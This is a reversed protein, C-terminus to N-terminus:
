SRVLDLYGSLDGVVAADKRSELLFMSIEPPLGFDLALEEHLRRARAEFLEALSDASAFRPLEVANEFWGAVSHEVYDAIGADVDRVALPQRDPAFASLDLPSSRGLLEAAAHEGLVESCHLGDRYTGSVVYLGDLDTRGVVPFTDLTVPRNGMRWEEVRHFFTRQDLQEMACQAVFHGVGVYPIPEAEAFLVNTAGFYERAGGLPVVHLGCAGSRNPTRVVTEFSDGMVRLGVFAIGSGAYMPLVQESPLVTRLLRATVTGAAVVVHPATATAGDAIRVGRIADRDAVLSDAIADVVEVGAGMLKRELLRLVQRADVAGEDPLYLARLPRADVVPNLGPVESPEAEHWREGWRELAGVIAGFNQSDLQGSRGNLIVHTGDTVHLQEGAEAAIEALERLRAPWRRHAALSLEFKTRAPVSALTDKTVEGFCGLMAGAARSAAAERPTPGVVTVSADPEAAVIAEAVSLGIIGNGVVVVDSTM